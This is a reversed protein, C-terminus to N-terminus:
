ASGAKRWSMFARCEEWVCLAKNETNSLIMPVVSSDFYEEWDQAADMHYLVMTCQTREAFATVISRFGAAHEAVEQLIRLVIDKREEYHGDLWVIFLATPETASM